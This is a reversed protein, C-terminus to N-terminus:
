PGYADNLKKTAASIASTQISFYSQALLGTVTIGQRAAIESNSIVVIASHSANWQITVNNTYRRWTPVNNTPSDVRFSVTWTGNTDTPKTTIVATANSWLQTFTIANTYYVTTQAGAALALLMAFGCLIKKM